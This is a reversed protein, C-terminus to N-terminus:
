RQASRPAELDPLTETSTTQANSEFRCGAFAFTGDSLDRAEEGFSMGDMARFAVSHNRIVSDGVAVAGGAAAIAEGNDELLCGQVSANTHLALIGFSKNGDDLHSHHIYTRQVDLNSQAIGVIGTGEVGAIECETVTASGQSVLLAEQANGRSAVNAVLSQILDLTGKEIGIGVGQAWPIALGTAELKVPGRTMIAARMTAQAPSGLIATRELRIKARQGGLIGGLIGVQAQHRVTVDVFEVEGGNIVIPTGSRMEAGAQELISQRISVTGFAPSAGLTGTDAHLGVLRQAQSHIVSGVFDLHGNANAELGTQTSPGAVLGVVSNKVLGNSGTDTVLVGSAVNRIESDELVLSGGQGAMAGLSMQDTGLGIVLSHSVHAKAEKGSAAIGVVAETVILREGEFTGSQVAIPSSRSVLTLSRASVHASGSIYIANNKGNGVITDKACRGVLTVDKKLSTSGWTGSDIAIVGGARVKTLAEDLSAVVNASKRKTSVVIDANSPPFEAKCDDVPVCSEQGLIAM